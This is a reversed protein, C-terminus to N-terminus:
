ELGDDFGLSPTNQIGDDGAVGTSEWLPLLSSSSSSSSVGLGIKSRGLLSAATELVSTGAESGAGNGEVEGGLDGGGM